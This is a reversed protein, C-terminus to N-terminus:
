SCTNSRRALTTLRVAPHAPDFVSVTSHLRVLWSPDNPTPAILRERELTCVLSDPCPLLEVCPAGLEAELRSRALELRVAFAGQERVDLLALEGDETLRQKLEPASLCAIM